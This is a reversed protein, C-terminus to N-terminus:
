NNSTKKAFPNKFFRRTKKENKERPTQPEAKEREEKIEPFVNTEGLYFSRYENYKDDKFFHIFTEDYRRFSQALLRKKANEGEKILLERLHEEPVIDAMKNRHITLSMFRENQKTLVAFRHEAFVPELSKENKELLTVLVVADVRGDEYAISQSLKRKIYVPVIVENSTMDDRSNMRSMSLSTM